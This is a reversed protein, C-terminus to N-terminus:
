GLGLSDIDLKYAIKDNDSNIYKAYINEDEGLYIDAFDESAQDTHRITISGIKDTFETNPKDDCDKISNLLNIMEKDYSLEKRKRFYRILITTNNQSNKTETEDFSVEYDQKKQIISTDSTTTSNKEIDDNSNSSCAYLSLVM